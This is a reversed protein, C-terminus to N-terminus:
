VSVLDMSVVLKGSVGTKVNVEVGFLVVNKVESFDGTNKERVKTFM